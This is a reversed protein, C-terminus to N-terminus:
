TLRVMAITYAKAEELDFFRTPKDNPNICVWYVGGSASVIHAYQRRDKFDLRGDPAKWPGMLFHTGMGPNYDWMYTVDAGRREADVM